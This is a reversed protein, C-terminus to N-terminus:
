PSRSRYETVAGVHRLRARARKVLCYAILVGDTFLVDGSGWPMNSASPTAERFSGGMSSRSRDERWCSLRRSQSFALMPPPVPSASPPRRSTGATFAAVFSNFSAFTLSNVVEQLKQEHPHPM